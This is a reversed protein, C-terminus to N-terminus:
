QQLWFGLGPGVSHGHGHDHGHSGILCQVQIMLQDTQGPDDGLIVQRLLEAGVASVALARCDRDAQHGAEVVSARKRFRDIM